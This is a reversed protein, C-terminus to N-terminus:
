RGDSPRGSRRFPIPLAPAPAPAPGPSTIVGTVGLSSSQTMGQCYSIAKSIAEKTEPNASLFARDETTYQQLLSLADAWKGKAYADKAKKYTASNLDAWSVTAVLTLALALFLVLFWKNIM